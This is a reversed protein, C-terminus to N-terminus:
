GRLNGASRRHGEAAHMHSSGGGRSGRGGGVGASTTAAATAGDVGAGGVAGNGGGGSGQSGVYSTQSSGGPPPPPPPAHAHAHSDPVYVHGNPLVSGSSAGGGSSQSDRRSGDLKDSYIYSLGSSDDAAAGPRLSPDTTTATSSYISDSGSTGSSHFSSADHQSSSRHPLSSPLTGPTSYPSDFTPNMGGFGVEPMSTTPSTKASTYGPLDETRYSSSSTLTRNVQPLLRESPGVRDSTNPLSAAMGSLSFGTPSESTVAPRHVLNGYAYLAADSDVYVSKGSGYRGYGQVMHTPDQGLMPQSYNIAYDVGDDQYAGAWGSMPSFYGKSGYQYQGQRYPSMPDGGPTDTAYQSMSSLPSVAVRAQNSYPRAAELNYGFDNGEHRLHTETSSVAVAIRKRPQNSDPDVERETM